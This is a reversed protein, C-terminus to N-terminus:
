RQKASFHNLLFMLAYHTARERNINRTYLLRMRKSAGGEPGAYGIWVHPTIESAEDPEAYGTTSLGIDAGLRDRVGQAMEEAVPASVVSHMEISQHSVGLCQEKVEPLYATIGGKFWNSAGAVSVLLSSLWGGTLSEAVALTQGSRQLAEAVLVPLPRGDEAYIHGTLLTKVQRVVEELQAKAETAAGEEARLGFELSVGGSSPLYAISVGEPLYEYIPELRHAAESEPLDFLRLVHGLHILTSFRQKLRPIVEQELIHLMEFPVGPMAVLLRGAREFWMGPATGLANPLVQCAVPVYAQLRNKESLDRGHQTYRQELWRLTPEHWHMDSDFLKALCQKTRDDRTPGLGGSLLVVEHQAMEQKVVASIAAPDDGIVLSRQLAYGHQRLLVGMKTANTNVTRGRLLEDGIAIYSIKPM